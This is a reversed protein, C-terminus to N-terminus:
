EWCAHLCLLYNLWRSGRAYTTHPTKQQRAMNVDDLQTELMFEASEGKMEKEWDKNADIM